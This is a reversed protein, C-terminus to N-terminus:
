FGIRYFGDFLDLIRVLCLLFNISCISFWSRYFSLYQQLSRSRGWTHLISYHPTHSSPRGGSGLMCLVRPELRQWFLSDAVKTVTTSGERGVAWWCGGAWGTWTWGNHNKGSTCLGEHEARRLVRPTTSRCLKTMRRGQRWSWRSLVQRSIRTSGLWAWSIFTGNGLGGNEMYHMVIGALSVLGLSKHFYITAEPLWVCPPWSTLMRRAVLCPWLGKAKISNELLFRAGISLIGRLSTLGHTLYPWSLSSWM